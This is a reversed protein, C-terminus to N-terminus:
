RMVVTRGVTRRSEMDELAAPVHDFPVTAGVVPHISGAALLEVLHDQVQRGVETTPPNFRPVPVPVFDSVFPVVAPEVYALIVGVLDFNGFCLARGSVTPVEEAEIGAAFGVSLHRGGRGLCRLSRMTTGGGVGDFCVDVGMGGTADLVQTVFDDTRYNVVLDAGLKKVLAAKDDSGVTAMVRAGAAVALQVAASGVGGAAAHVLVTEGAALRGREHLGLHALHFPYFFAAAEIDDLQDPAAFAMATSGAVLDAHAGTAGRGSATVRRGVWGDAGAGAALVEGVCEMGLTYPLPPNITLYRGYCGDVENYNLASATTRVLIEGDGPLPESVQRLELAKTPAGYRVVQWARM